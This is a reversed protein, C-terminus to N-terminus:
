GELGEFRPTYEYRYGYYYPASYSADRKPDFDNLVLGTVSVQVHRLQSIAHLLEDRTTKAARAVLIAGDTESGIIAADTVLNIPPSDILVVDYTERLGELLLRFRPSALLEAPNPPVVGTALLDVAGFTELTLSQLASEITCQGVLIESLGPTQLGNLMKHLGGRRMDADVVAIRKGQQVLAIALNMVSTSKGDGAAPSTFILVKPPTDARAFSINTRLKRFAESAVSHPDKLLLKNEDSRLETRGFSPVRGNRRIEAWAQLYKARDPEGIHPILALVTAGTILEVEEKTHVTRDLRERLLIAAIGLLLGVIVGLAVNLTPRPAIPTTPFFGPDVVRVSGDDVAEAIQAERLRTQLMTYIQTLGSSTRELRAYEVEQLPVADVKNHFQVLANRISTAQQDLGKRYTEV